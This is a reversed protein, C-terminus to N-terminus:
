KVIFTYDGKTRHGDRAAIDWIVRYIGAPLRPVSVLLTTDSPNVDTKKDIIEGKANHVMIASFAPELAADFWV